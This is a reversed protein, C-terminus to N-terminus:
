KAAPSKRSKSKAAAKKAAAKKGASKKAAKPAATAAPREVKPRRKEMEAAVGEVYVLETSPADITAGGDDLKVSCTSVFCFPHPGGAKHEEATGNRASLLEGVKGANSTGGLFRVRAGPLVVGEPGDLWPTPTIHEMVLKEVDGDKGVITSVNWTSEDTYIAPREPPMRYPVTGLLTKLLHLGHAGHFKRGPSQSYRERADFLAYPVGHGEALRIVESQDKAEHININEGYHAVSCLFMFRVLSVDDLSAILEAAREQRRRARTWEDGGVKVAETWDLLEYMVGQTESPIRRFHESAMRVFYARGLPFVVEGPRDAYTEPTVKDLLAKLTRRRVPEAVRADFLEQKRKRMKTKEAESKEVRQGSARSSSSDKRGKHDKCKPEVCAWATQGRNNGHVFVAPLAFECRNKKGVLEYEAMGMTEPPLGYEKKREDGLYSFQSSLYLVQSAGEAKLKEVQLKIHAEMKRKFGAPNTCIASQAADPFLLQNAATNYQCTSCPGQEPVLTADELKWPARTLDLLVNENIWHALQGVTLPQTKLPRYQAGRVWEQRYCQDLARPQVEPALRSLQVAHGLTILGEMFDKVAPEVLTTLSLRQAVYRASKNVRRALEEVTLGEVTKLLHQYGFAEDMPHVDARHLNEHIQADLVQDDTMERLIAPVEKLGAATAARWRREGAIIEFRGKKSARVLLPELVGQSKVSETLEGLKEQDFYRRPNTPSPDVKATPVWQLTPQDHTATASM